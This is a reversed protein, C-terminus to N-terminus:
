RIHNERDEAICAAELDICADVLMRGGVLRVAGKIRHALSALAMLDNQSFAKRAALLDDRNTDRLSKLVEDRQEGFRELKATDITSVSAATPSLAQMAPVVGGLARALAELGVPKILCEDMGAAIAQRRAEPQANATAGLILCRTRHRAATAPEQAQQQKAEHERIAAALSEGSMVPMSCDTLVADFPESLWRVIAQNGDDALVVRCGLSELQQRMVLRNAPHDDVVLVRLGQLRARRSSAPATEGGPAGRPQMNFYHATAAPVAPLDLVVSVRTGKGLTSALQITGNMLGVLRKCISLGLGTGGYQGRQSEGVQSFPEFLLAQDALAIGVGSDVVGLEIRLCEPWVAEMTGEGDRKIAYELQVGGTSTFKVANSLLNAVVQRLRVPDAMVWAEREGEGLRVLSFGIGKQAAINHYLRALGDFWHCLELPQPSLELKAAEMKSVDLVNDILALLDRAAQQMVSLTDSRRADSGAEELQLELMGLIANMPTRIEHSMTALFASTARNASEAEDRAIRLADEREVLQQEAAVRRRIQVRMSIAWALLFLAGFAAVVSAFVIRPRLRQWVPEPNAVLLWRRRIADIEGPPIHAIAKDIISALATQDARVGVNVPFPTGGVTGTIALTDNPYQGIAYYAVEIPMVTADAHGDRVADFADLVSAAPTLGIQLQARSLESWMASDALLAVRKNALADVDRLPSASARTVIVWLSSMYTVSTTLSQRFDPADVMTPTLLAREGRLDEAVASVSSRLMGEFKIGTQRSIAELVDISIGAPEGRADVFAFPALDDLSSFRVVPHTSIWQQEVNTLELPRVFSLAGDMRSWRSRVGTAFSTPLSQLARNLLTVLTLEGPRVAFNFGGEEFPAYGSPALNRLQLQDIVYSSVLLNGVFADAEGFSVAKLADFVRPYALMTRGPYAAAVDAEPTDGAVYALRGGAAVQFSGDSHREILALQNAVYSRTRLFADGDARTSSTAIDIENNRLAALMSARDDFAHWEITAGIATGVAEAFDVSMGYVSRRLGMIDLPPSVNPAIGIVLRGGHRDMLAQEEVDLPLVPLALQQRWDSSVPGASPGAAGPDTMTVHAAARVQGSVGTPLSASAMDSSWRSEPNAPLRDALVVTSTLGACVVWTLCFSKAALHRM